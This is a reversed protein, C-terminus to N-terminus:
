RMRPGMQGVIGFPMWIWNARKKWLGSSLCLSASPGPSLIGIMVQKHETLSLSAALLQLDFFISIDTGDM